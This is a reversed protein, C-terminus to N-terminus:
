ENYEKNISNHVLATITAVDQETLDETHVYDIYEDESDIVIALVKEEIYDITGDDYHLAISVLKSM